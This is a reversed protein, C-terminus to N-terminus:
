RPGGRLITVLVQLANRLMAIGATLILVGEIVRIPGNNPVFGIAVSVLVVCGLSALGHLFLRGLSTPTLIV